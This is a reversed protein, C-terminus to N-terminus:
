DVILEEPHKVFRRVVLVILGGIILGAIASGLAYLFWEVVPGLIGAM